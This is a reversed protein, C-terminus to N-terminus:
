NSLEYVKNQIDELPTELRMSIGASFIQVPRGNKYIIVTPVSVVKDKVSKPQDDLLAYQYTCGRLKKLDLRTNADNWEANIQVVTISQSFAANSCLLLLAVLGRSLVSKMSGKKLKTLNKVM